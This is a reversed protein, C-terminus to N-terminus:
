KFPFVKSGLNPNNMADRRIAYKNMLEDNPIAVFLVVSEEEPLIAYLEGVVGEGLPSINKHTPNQSPSPFPLGLAAAWLIALAFDAYPLGVHTSAPFQPPPPSPVIVGCKVEATMFQKWLTPM